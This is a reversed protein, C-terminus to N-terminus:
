RSYLNVFHYIARTGVSLDAYRSYCSCHYVSNVCSLNHIIKGTVSICYYKGAFKCLAM